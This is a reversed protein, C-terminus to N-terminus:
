KRQPGGPMSEDHRQLSLVPANCQKTAEVILVEKDANPISHGMILLDYGGAKCKKLAQVFGEASVVEYGHAELLMQRISLLNLDYSISLVRPM